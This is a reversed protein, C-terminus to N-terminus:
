KSKQLEKQLSLTFELSRISFVTANAKEKLAALEAELTPIDLVERNDIIRIVKAPNGVAVADDPIDHTVVSGAGIVCRAGITIGPKVICGSGIWTDHKIHIPAGINYMHGSASQIRRECARMPHGITMLKVNPAIFVDDEITIGGGDLFSCNKQIFVRKGISTFCSYDTAFPPLLTSGEGFEKFHERCLQEIKVRKEAASKTPDQMVYSLAPCFGYICEDRLLSLEPDEGFAEFFEGSLMKEKETKMKQSSSEAM